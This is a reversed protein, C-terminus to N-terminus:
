ALEFIQAGQAPDYCDASCLTRGVTNRVRLLGNLRAQKEPLCRVQNPTWPKAWVLLNIYENLM